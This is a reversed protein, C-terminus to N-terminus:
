TAVKRPRAARASALVVVAACTVWVKGVMQGWIFATSGFAITLFLWSDVALGVLNSVAVARLWGRGRLPTYVAFDALESVLFAVASATAIRGSSVSWSLTAGVLIALTVARRGVLDQILDRFTFAFGAFYVGAPAALGFGVGVIGYRTIAWNALVITAVYAAAATLGLTRNRTM